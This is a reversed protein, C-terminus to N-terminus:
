LLYKMIMPQYKIPIKNYIYNKKFLDWWNEIPRSKDIPVGEEICFAIADKRWKGKRIATCFYNIPYNRQNRVLNNQWVISFFNKEITKTRPASKLEFDWIDEGSIIIKKFTPVHWISAQLSTIFPSGKSIVQIDNYGDVLAELKPGRHPFLRFYAPKEKEIFLLIEKIKENEVKKSLLYDDQIYLMYEHPFQDLISIMEDSWNNASVFLQNIGVLQKKNSMLYIPLECDPWYKRWLTLFPKWLDAYRDCSAILIGIDCNTKM